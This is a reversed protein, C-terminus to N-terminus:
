RAAEGGAISLVPMTAAAGAPLSALTEDLLQRAHPVCKGCCGGLGYLRNLERLSLVGDERVARRIERDSVAKCVCIIM